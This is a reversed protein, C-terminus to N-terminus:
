GAKITVELELPNGLDELDSKLVYLTGVVGRERDDALVEQFRVANKTDREKIFAVTLEATAKAAM